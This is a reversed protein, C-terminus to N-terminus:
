PNGEEREHKRVIRAPYGMITCSDPVNNLDISGIGITVDTGVTIGQLIASQVGVLTRKGIAVNGSINVNPMISSFDDISSDHGIDCKTNLFVCKGLQAGTSVFCFRGVVVGEALAACGSIYSSKHVIQPFTHGANLSKIKNYISSKLRTDAIGFIVDLSENSNQIYDFGGLVSYGDVMTQKKIGDDIFGIFDTCPAIGDVDPLMDLIERGLGSAGYIVIKRGDM